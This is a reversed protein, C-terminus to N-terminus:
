HFDIPFGLLGNIMYPDHSPLQEHVMLALIGMMAARGQNLEIGRKRDQEEPSFADWGFDIAGNRSCLHCCTASQLTLFWELYLSVVAFLSTGHCVAYKCTV